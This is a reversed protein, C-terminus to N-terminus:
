VMLTISGFRAQHAGRAAQEAMQMLMHRVVARAVGAQGFLGAAQKYWHYAM